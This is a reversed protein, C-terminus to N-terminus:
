IAGPLKTLRLRASRHEVGEPGAKSQEINIWDIKDAMVGNNELQQDICYFFLYADDCRTRLM